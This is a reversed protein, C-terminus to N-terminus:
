HLLTIKETAIDAKDLCFEFSKQNDKYLSGIFQLETRSNDRDPVKRDHTTWRTVGSHLGWLNNGKSALERTINEYLGEMHNITKSSMDELDSRDHNLISKVLEDVLKQTVPTSAFKKYVKNLQLSETLATQILGPIEEIRTKMSATHRYKSRGARYFRYFQNACSMTVDGIGICLSTSGDNSDLVTVYRKITDGKINLDGDIRLQLYVQRGNYLSGAKEVHLVDTFDQIGRLTMEIIDRNQTIHYRDGVTAIHKRNRSNYLGYSNTSRGTDKGVLAEQQITFNLGHKKMIETAQEEISKKM